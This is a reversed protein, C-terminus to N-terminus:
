KQKGIIYKVVLYVTSVNMILMDILWLMPFITPIQARNELTVKIIMLIALGWTTLNIRKKMVEVIKQKKCKQYKNIKYLEVFFTIGMLVEVVTLVVIFWVTLELKMKLREKEKKNNKLIYTFVLFDWHFILNEFFNKKKINVCKQLDTLKCFM